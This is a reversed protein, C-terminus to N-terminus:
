KSLAVKSWDDKGPKLMCKKINVASSCSTTGSVKCGRNECAKRADQTDNNGGAPCQECSSGSGCLYCLEANIAATVFLAGFLCTLSLVWKKM